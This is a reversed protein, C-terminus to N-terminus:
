DYKKEVPGLKIKNQPDDVFMLIVPGKRKGTVYELHEMVEPSGGFQKGTWNAPGADAIVAVISRGSNPNIVLVKRYKYWEKLVPYDKKWDPLYLTQVAVYYKEKLSLDENLDNRNQAFYGWAGTKSAMDPVSDGPFRMLHQEAGMWGYQHNLRQDELEFKADIGLIERVKISISQEQFKTLSSIKDPLLELAGKALRDRLDSAAILSIASDSLSLDASTLPPSFALLSGAIMGSAALKTLSSRINGVAIGASLLWDSAQPHRKKFDDTALQRKSQLKKKFLEVSVPDPIDKM